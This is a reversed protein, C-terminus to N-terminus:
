PLGGEMTQEELQFVHHHLTAKKKTAELRRLSIARYYRCVYRISLFNSIVLRMLATSAASLTDVIPSERM